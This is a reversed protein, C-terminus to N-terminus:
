GELGLEIRCMALLKDAPRDGLAKKVIRAEEGSFTLAVRHIDQDRIVAQREEETKASAIQRETERRRDAAAVTIGELAQAGGLEREGGQNEESAYRTGQPIWATSFEEAAMAEPAAVDELMRQIEIDDLMLSDQAWDLAGLAQLDRLVAAALEIDESGRARNHTFTAIMRQKDSWDVFVVPIESLAISEHQAARWRHEGDVIERTDRQVIVPQTFGNEKISKLLLEFDHESQRNPNYSNPRLSDVPAYEVVLRELAQSQKEVAKRGKREIVKTDTM